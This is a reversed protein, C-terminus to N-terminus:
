VGVAVSDLDTLAAALGVAVVLEDTDGDTDATIVKDDDLLVIVAPGAERDRDAERDAERDADADAPQLEDDSGDSVGPKLQTGWSTVVSAPPLTPLQAQAPSGPFPM